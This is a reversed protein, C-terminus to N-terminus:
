RAVPPDAPAPFDLPKQNDRDHVSSQPLDLEYDIRWPNSSQDSTSKIVFVRETDQGPVRMRIRMTDAPFMIYRLPDDPFGIGSVMQADQPNLIPRVERTALLLDIGRPNMGPITALAYPNATNINLGVSSGSAIAVDAISQGEEWLRPFRDWDLIRKAEYTTRLPMLSPLPRGLDRYQQSKAGNIRVGEGPSTYDRLKAVLPSRVEIPVDFAGLLRVIDDDLGLNLNIMGRVDQIRVEVGRLLYPRDDLAVYTQSPKPPAFPDGADARDFPNSIELGRSSMFQSNLAFILESRAELMQRETAALNRRRLAEDVGSTAWQSVVAVILAIAALLWLVLPL